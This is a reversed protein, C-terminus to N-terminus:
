AATERQQGPVNSRSAGAACQARQTLQRQLAAFFAGPDGVIVLTLQDPPYAKRALAMMQAPSVAMVAPVYHETWDTPLGLPARTGHRTFFCNVPWESRAM